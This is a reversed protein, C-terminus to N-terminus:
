KTRTNGCMSGSSAASHLFRYGVGGSPLLRHGSSTARFLNDIEARVVEMERWVSEFPYCRGVM